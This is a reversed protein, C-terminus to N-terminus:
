KSNFNRAMEWPFDERKEGHLAFVALSSSVRRVCSIYISQSSREERGEEMSERNEDTIRCRKGIPSLLDSRDPSIPVRSYRFLSVFDARRNRCRTSNIRSLCEQPKSPVIKRVASFSVRVRSSCSPRSFLGSVWFRPLRSM